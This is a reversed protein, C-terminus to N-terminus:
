RIITTKGISFRNDDKLARLYYTGQPVNSFNCNISNEGKVVSHDKVLVDVIDGNTAILYITVGGSSSSNYVIRGDQSIPNPATTLSEGLYYSDIADSSSAIVNTSDKVVFSQMMGHDEHVLFHCHYMYPVTEDHFTEFKMIIRVPADPHVMVNDKRGQLEPAPELGNVDLVQFQVDHVHFPHSLDDDGIASLEWIEVDGLTVTDTPVYHDYYSGNMLFSLSGSNNVLSMDMYRTRVADSELLEEIYVLTSPITTVPNAPVISPNAILGLLHFDTEDLDTYTFRSGITGDMCCTTVESPFSMLNLTDGSTVSSMDVMLEVREGPGVLLRTHSVPEELLGGDSGIQYFARDDEFGLYYPRRAAADLVRLRVYSSPVEYVANITANTMHTEGLDAGPVDLTSEEFNIEGTTAMPGTSELTIDRLIVPIDNVGYERPLNLAAEEDDRVIIMGALGKWVQEATHGHPHPHPHYWLTTAHDRVEFDVEWTQGPYIESHPGGDDAAAVHAGHWHCTTTDNNLNNTVNLSIVEGKNWILTPGLIADTSNIGYAEYAVGDWDVTVEDYSINYTPGSLTDPMNLTNYTVARPGGGPQALCVAGVAMFSITLIRKLNIM